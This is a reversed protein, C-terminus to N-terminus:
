SSLRSKVAAAIMKGEARGALRKNAEGMVRGMDQMSSAGLEAVLEGVFTDLEQEDMQKPLFQSIVEIEENETTALDDRGQEAYISASDRRQKVMKQLIKIETADDLEKSAGSTKFLLIESKIARLARLAAQDKAKMADKMQQNVKEELNM